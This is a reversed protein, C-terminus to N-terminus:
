RPWLARQSGGQGPPVEIGRDDVVKWELEQYSTNEPYLKARVLVERREKTLVRDGDCVLEIKRLPIRTRM